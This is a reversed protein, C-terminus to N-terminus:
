LVISFAMVALVIAAVVYTVPDRMSLTLPDEDLDGRSAKLWLRSLWYLIVPCILLMPGSRDYLLLFEKSHAYLALIIVASFSSGMGLHILVERDSEIYARGSQGSEALERAHVLESYRKATALSLFFFLSFVLFWDSLPVSTIVAGAWIRISYFSSLFFVDLLLIRKLHLSYWLTALIYLVLVAGFMANLFFGLAITAATLLSSILLGAPISTEGSAFPRRAKWPHARDSHLDLLDNVIYISSACFSFIVFGMTTDLLPWLEWRHALLLPLFLLLNKAWHHGRLARLWTRLSPSQNEFVREVRAVNRVQRALRENGVVYAVCSAKWVPLDAESDGVYEYGCGAFERQLLDAKVQGKLNQGDHTAYVYDFIGLHEAVKEALSIDAATVLAIRRGKEREEMLFSLFDRQYPLTAVDLAARKALEEKCHAKGRLLWV